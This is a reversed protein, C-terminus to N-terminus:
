RNRYDTELQAGLNYTEDTFIDAPMRRFSLARRNKNKTKKISLSLHVISLSTFWPLIEQLITTLSM